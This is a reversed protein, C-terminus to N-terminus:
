PLRFHLTLLVRNYYKFSQHMLNCLNIQLSNFVRSLMMSKSPLFRTYMLLTIREQSPLEYNSQLLSYFILWILLVINITLIIPSIMTFSLNVHDLFIFWTNLCLIQFGRLIGKCLASIASMRHCSTFDPLRFHLIAFAHDICIVLLTNQSAM